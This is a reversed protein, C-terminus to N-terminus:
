LGVWRMLRKTHGLRMSDLHQLYCFLLKVFIEVGYFIRQM